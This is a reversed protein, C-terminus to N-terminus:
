EIYVMQNTSGKFIYGCQNEIEVDELPLIDKKEYVEECKLIFQIIGQYDGHFEHATTKGTLAGDIVEDKGILCKIWNAQGKSNRRIDYEYITIKVGLLDRIDINPADMNRDIRIKSTLDRLKMDREIICMLSYADAHKLLGFYSAWSEDTTCKRADDAVRKRVMVYGKNHECKNKNNRFYKYGCFDFPKDMPQIVCTNRKARIGLVYWWYNKIRWKAANAEEKTHFALFNDDAYRVSFSSLRKVYYDFDSMVIHHAFPSSPTGIPLKGNVFCVTVAFNIFWKDTTYRKIMKRFTKPTTHKYCERQDVVLCYKLDLRDFYVGKMRRILSYKRSRGLPGCGVKCNLGNLNDHIKYHYSMKNVFLHQYIRTILDPVDIDRVKGNKNTKVIRRYSIHNVWEGNCLWNYLKEANLDLDDMFERVSSKGSHGSAACECAVRVDSLTIKIRDLPEM